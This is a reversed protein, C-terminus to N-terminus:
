CITKFRELIVDLVKEPPLKWWHNVSFIEVECFGNYGTNEVTKRISKLDAVGDGMMGRDLLVDKTDALWDCLHYGFIREVGLQQLPEALHLDWWIHYVDLAVGVNDNGIANCMDVADRVTVLCSRNGGYVPNLPELAFKVGISAAYEAVEAVIEEVRKLSDGISHSNEIVGGVVSTICDAGLEAAMDISAYLDNLMDLKLQPALPGVLFPTRCLGSVQMGAARVRNGIEFARDGIERRWFTIGGYGREACAAIIQEASWGAGYGELNHGLSATNLALSSHNKAFDRM